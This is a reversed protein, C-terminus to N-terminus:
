PGGGPPTGPAPPETGQPVERQSAYERRYQNFEPDARYGEGQALVTRDEVDNIHHTTVRQSGTTPDIEPAGTLTNVHREIAYGTTRDYVLDPRGPVHAQGHQDYVSGMGQGLVQGVERANEPAVQAAIDQLAMTHAVNRKHEHNATDFVAQAADIDNAVGTARAAVLDAAAQDLTQQSNALRRQVAPIMNRMGDNRGSAIVGASKADLAADTLAGNVQNWRAHSSDQVGEEYMNQMITATQGFGAGSLDVRQANAANSRAEGLMRAAKARDSGAAANIAALMEAPGDAYGTGTGANAVAALENFHTAGVKKKARQISEVNQELELGVQGLGELHERIDQKTGRGNMAAQLFDDNQLVAKVDDDEKAKAMNLMDRKSREARVAGRSFGKGSGVITATQIARNVRRSAFNNGQFRNNNQARDTLVERQNKRYNKQRDFVGKSRDNVMGTFAGFAGTLIKLVILILFFPGIYASLKAIIFFAKEINGADAAIGIDAILRAFGRGIVLLAFIVPYILLLKSFLDWWIKWLKDNGPFIWSLIALPSVVILFVIVLERVTLVIFIIMLLFAATIFFSALIGLSLLGISGTTFIALLGAGVGFVTDLQGGLGPVLTDFVREFLGAAEGGDPPAFLSPLTLNEQGGFPEAIIGGIGRGLATTVDIMLLCLDYSLTMFIVAIFLRPMARKVTYADIFTFGLATGIVLFLMIPILLIAAINRFNAWIAKVPNEEVGASPRAEFYRPNVEMASRIRADLQIIAQHSIRLIPCMAFSFEGSAECSETAIQGGDGEQAYSVNDNQLLLPVTAVSTFLFLVLFLGLLTKSYRRLLTSM